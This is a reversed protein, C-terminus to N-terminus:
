EQTEGMAALEEPDPEELFRIEIRDLRDAPFGFPAEYADTVSRGADRAIDMGWFSMHGMAKSMARSATKVGDIRLTASANDNQDVRWQVTCSKADEPVPGILEYGHGYRKYLFVAKGDKVYFSYGGLDDGASLLVGSASDIGKPFFATIDMSRNTSAIMSPQSIHGQQPYFTLEMKSILGQPPRFRIVDVLTRDDLPLVGNAEAEQWWIDKLERLKDANTAAVDNRESFDTRTDYLQWRDGGYDDGKEHEALAKWGDAYIARRGFMEWYQISRPAPATSSALTARFSAGDFQAANRKGALDMLTPALDVVHLFQSRVSGPDPLGLPWSMVLPSRVGGLDVHQKYRRFPTNGAMAWGLPYHAPGNRGGIDDIRRIMDKLPEPAGSYPANCDVAGNRGGERSAGNDAFVLIITNDFLSLRKLEEVIRGIQEDTHQLFGAFAAQLRTFFTKEEDELGDWAPVEPNREVLETEPSLLGLQKQRALRDERTKDWGKEFVPVYPDIYRRPVQIPAHTAGFCLNLFFPVSTRFAAHDRLYSITREALDESLHYGDRRPPDISHNDQVLEPTYQDTCGGLFGYYRDFGRALPWNHHPGAPTLDQSPALHWKGVMYTGYGENRLLDSLLPVDDRVAGRSNPFGTDNDALCRMGITHHNRGTLFSARTPSCLPTVHFNSYRLGGKALADIHPTQIESGFCGFDSWGTDDFVITIVNPPLSARDRPTPWWPTSEAVTRGIHGPFDSM